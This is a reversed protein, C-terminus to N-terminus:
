PQQREMDAAQGTSPASAPVSAPVATGSADGPVSAAPTDSISDNFISIFKIQPADLTGSVEYKASAM